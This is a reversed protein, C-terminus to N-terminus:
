YHFFNGFTMLYIPCQVFSPQPLEWDQQVHQQVVPAEWVVGYQVQLADPYLEKQMLKQMIM